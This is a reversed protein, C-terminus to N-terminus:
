REEEKLIFAEIIDGIKIDNFGALGIGCEYGSAVEKAEDKNRKMSSISGEFIVVNDRILRFKANRLINGDTVYCGAITGVKSINFTERVEAHGLEEERLVPDLKKFIM